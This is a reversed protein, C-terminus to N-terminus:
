ELHDARGGATYETSNICTSSQNVHHDHVRQPCRQLNQCIHPFLRQCKRQRFDMRGESSCVSEQFSAANVRRCVNQSSRREGAWPNGTGCHFSPTVNQKIIGPWLAQACTPFGQTWTVETSNEHSQLYKNRHKNQSSFCRHTTPFSRTPKPLAEPPSESLEKDEEM